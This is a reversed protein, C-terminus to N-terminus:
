VSIEMARRGDSRRGFVFVGREARWKRRISIVVVFNVETGEVSEEFGRGSAEITAFDMRTTARFIWAHAGYFIRFIRPTSYNSADLTRRTDLLWRRTRKTFPVPIKRWRNRWPAFSVSQCPPLMHCVARMSSRPSVRYPPKWGGIATPASASGVSCDNGTIITM